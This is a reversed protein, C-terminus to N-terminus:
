STSLTLQVLSASTGLDGQITPLSPLYMDISLPAFATLTGLVFLLLARRRASSPSSM